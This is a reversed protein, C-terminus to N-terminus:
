QHCALGLTIALARTPQSPSTTAHRCAPSPTFKSAPVQMGDNDLDVLHYAAAAVSGADVQTTGKTPEEEAIRDLVRFNLPGKPVQRQVGDVTAPWHFALVWSYPRDCSTDGM